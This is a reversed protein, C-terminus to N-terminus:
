HFLSVLFTALLILVGSLPTKLAASKTAEAPVGLDFTCSNDSEEKDTKLSCKWKGAHNAGFKGFVLKSEGEKITESRGVATVNVGAKTFEEQGMENDGGANYTWTIQSVDYPADEPVKCTLSYPEDVAPEQEGANVCEIPVKKPPDTPEKPPETPAKTPAKTTEKVVHEVTAATDVDASYANATKVTFVYTGPGPLEFTADTDDAALEQAPIEAATENGVVEKAVSATLGTVVRNEGANAALTWTITVSTANYGTDEHVALDSVPHPPRNDKTTFTTEAPQIEARIGAANSADVKAEFDSAVALGEFTKSTEETADSTWETSGAARWSVSYSTAGEVADWSLAVSTFDPVAAFNTVGATPPELVTLAITSSPGYGTVSCAFAHEDAKTVEKITLTATGTADDMLAYVREDPDNAAILDKYQPAVFLSALNGPTGVLLDGYNRHVVPWSCTFTVTTKWIIPGEQAPSVSWSIESSFACFLASLVILAHFMVNTM